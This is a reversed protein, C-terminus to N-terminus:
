KNTQENMKSSQYINISCIQGYLIFPQEASNFWIIRIGYRISQLQKILSSKESQVFLM